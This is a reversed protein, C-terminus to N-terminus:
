RREGFIATGVRIMTAGESIAVEFDHSMGMSLQREGLCGPAKEELRDALKRLESFFPRTREPDEFYPPLSMLGDLKLGPLSHVAEILSPAESLPAGFKTKELGLDIQVLVSIVKGLENAAQSLKQALRASDVSHIVHFLEAARRAKNSQLHGVMHWELGTRSGFHRIKPEAEQIRNEGFRLQGADMAESILEVPFTKCIAILRISEPSRGCAAAAREVRNRVSNLNEAIRTV